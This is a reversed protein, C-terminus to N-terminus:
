FTLNLHITIVLQNQWEGYFLWSNGSSSATNKTKLRNPLVSDNKGVNSNCTINCLNIQIIVRQEWQTPDLERFRIWFLQIQHRFETQICCPVNVRSILQILGITSYTHADEFVPFYDNEYVGWLLNFGMLLQEVWIAVLGVPSVFFFSLITFFFLFYIIM